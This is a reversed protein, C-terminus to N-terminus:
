LRVGARDFERKKKIKLKLIQKVTNIILLKNKYRRKQNTFQSAGHIFTGLCIFNMCVLQM